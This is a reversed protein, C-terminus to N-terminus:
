RHTKRHRKPLTPSNLRRVIIKWGRWDAAIEATEWPLNSWNDQAYPILAIGQASAKLQCSLTNENGM